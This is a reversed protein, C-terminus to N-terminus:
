RRPGSDSITSRASKPRFGIGLRAPSRPCSCVQQVNHIDKIFSILVLFLFLLFNIIHLFNNGSEHINSVTRERRSVAYWQKCVKFCIGTYQNHASPLLLVRKGKQSIEIALLLFFNPNSSLNLRCLQRIRSLSQFFSSISRVGRIEKRGEPEGASFFFYHRQTEPVFKTTQLLKWLASRKGKNFRSDDCIAPSHAHRILKGRSRLFTPQHRFSCSSYQSLRSFIKWTLPNPHCSHLRHTHTKGFKTPLNKEDSENTAWWTSLMRLTDITAHIQNSLLERRGFLISVYIM